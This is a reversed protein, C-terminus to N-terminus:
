EELEAPASELEARHRKRFALRDPGASMNKYEVLLRQRTELQAEAHLQAATRVADRRSAGRLSALFETRPSESLLKDLNQFARAQGAPVPARGSLIDDIEQSNM